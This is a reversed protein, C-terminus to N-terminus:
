RPENDAIGTVSALAPGAPTVAALRQAHVSLDACLATVFAVDDERVVARETAPYPLPDTM